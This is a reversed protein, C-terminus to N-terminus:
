AAHLTDRSDRCSGSRLEGSPSNIKLVFYFVVMKPGMETTLLYEAKLFSSAAVWSGIQGGVTKLYGLFVEIM